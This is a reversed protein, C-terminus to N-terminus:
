VPVRPARRGFRRELWQRGVEQQLVLLAILWTVGYTVLGSFVIDSAFHAGQVIRAWGAVTGAALALGFVPWRWRRPAIFAFAFLAFVM